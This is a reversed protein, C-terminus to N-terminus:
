LSWKIRVTRLPAKASSRPRPRPPQRGLEPLHGGLPAKAKRGHFALSTPNGMSPPVLVLARLASLFM